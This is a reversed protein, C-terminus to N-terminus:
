KKGLWHDIAQNIAARLSSIDSNTHSSVLATPAVDSSLATPPSSEQTSEESEVEKNIGAFAYLDNLDGNFWNLDISKSEAGFALGDGNPTFQWFTWEKEMGAWPEVDRPMTVGEEYDKSYNAVWLPYYAWKDEFKRTTKNRGNMDWYSPSTYIIPTRGDRAEVEQLFQYLLANSPYKSGQRPAEFDAVPPLEGPDDMMIDCFIRAQILGSLDWRLFHYGGRLLGADKAAQWNYEFDEDIEGRESIKIFVYKAGQEVAKAFDMKQATSKDNQWHSIDIGLEM